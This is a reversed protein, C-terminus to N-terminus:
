KAAEHKGEEHYSRCEDCKVIKEHAAAPWCERLRLMADCYKQHEEAAAMNRKHALTKWSELEREVESVHELIPVASDMFAVVEDLMQLLVGRDAHAQLSCPMWGLLIEHKHRERIQQIEPERPDSM